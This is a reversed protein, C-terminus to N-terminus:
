SIYNFLFSFICIRCKWLHVSSEDVNCRIRQYNESEDICLIQVVCNNFSFVLKGLLSLMERTFLPSQHSCDLKGSCTTTPLTGPISDFAWEVWRWEQCSSGPLFSYDWTALKGMKGLFISILNTHITKCNKFPQCNIWIRKLVDDLVTGNFNLLIFCIEDGWIEVSHGLHMLERRFNRTSFRFETLYDFIIECFNSRAPM